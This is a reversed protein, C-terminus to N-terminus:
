GLRELVDALAAKRTRFSTGMRTNYAQLTSVRSTMGLLEPKLRAKVQILFFRDANGPITMDITTM